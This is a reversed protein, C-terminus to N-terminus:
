TRKPYRKFSKRGKGPNHINLITNKNMTVHQQEMERGEKESDYSGVIKIEPLLKKEFLGELWKRKDTMLKDLKSIHQRYRRKPNKSMGVYKVDKTIPDLLYYVHYM